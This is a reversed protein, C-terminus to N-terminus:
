LPNAKAKGVGRPYKVSTKALKKIVVLCRKYTNDLLFQRTEEITCSLKVLANSASAIEQACEGKYAILRGGVKLYPIIYEILVPLSAVARAIGIDYSERLHGVQEARQHLAQVNVLKLQKAVKDVFAVRKALSDILTVKCDPRAIAIVLGPVGAGSGIDVVNAGYPILNNATLSDIFHKVVIDYPEVIATLNCKKNTEQLMSSFVLLSQVTANDLALGLESAKSVLLNHM